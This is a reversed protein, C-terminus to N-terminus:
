HFESINKNVKVYSFSSDNKNYEFKYEAKLILSSLDKINQVSFVYDLEYYDRKHNYKYSNFNLYGNAQLYYKNLGISIRPYELIDNYNLRLSSIVENIFGKLIQYKKNLYFGKKYYNFNMPEENTSSFLNEYLCPDIIGYIFENFNADRYFGTKNKDIYNTINSFSNIIKDLVIEILSTSEL